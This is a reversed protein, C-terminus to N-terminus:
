PFLAFVPNAGVAPCLRVMRQEVIKNIVM